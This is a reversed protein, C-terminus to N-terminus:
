AATYLRLVVSKGGSLTNPDGMGSFEMSPITHDQNKFPLSLKPIIARYVSFGMKNGGYSNFMDIRYYSATGALENTITTTFGGVVTYSYSISYTKGNAAANFTFVGGTTVQYQTASPAGTSRELPTGFEDRVQAHEFGTTNAATYTAGAIVGTSEFPMGVRQGTAPTLGYAGAILAAQLRGQSFKGSVKGTTTAIDEPFENEGYLEKVNREVNLDLDQLTGVKHASSPSLGNPYVWLDGAGFNYQVTAM